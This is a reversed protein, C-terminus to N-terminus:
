GAAAATYVLSEWRKVEHGHTAESTSAEAGVRRIWRKNAATTFAAGRVPPHLREWAPDLERLDNSSLVPMTEAARLIIAVAKEHDAPATKMAARQGFLRADRAVRLLDHRERIRAADPDHPDCAPHERQGPEAAIMVGGCEACNGDATSMARTATASRQTRGPWWHAEHDGARRHSRFRAKSRRIGGDQGRPASRRLDEVAVRECAHQYFTVSTVIGEFGTQADRYLEGMRIDSEYSEPM